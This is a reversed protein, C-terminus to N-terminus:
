AAATALQALTDRYNWPMWESPNQKLEEPHRLAGVLAGTEASSADSSLSIRNRHTHSVGITSFYYLMQEETLGFGNDSVTLVSPAADVYVQPSDFGPEQARRMTCANQASMLLERLIDQPDSFPSASLADVLGQLNRAIKHKSM